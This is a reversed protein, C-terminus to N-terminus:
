CFSSLLSSYSRYERELNPVLNQTVAGEAQSLARIIIEKSSKGHCKFLAGHVGALLAARTQTPDLLTSGKVFEYFVEATKFFINGVFGNTLLLDVDGSFVAAPEVNGVYNWRDTQHSVLWTDLEQLESTGKGSERGINLLGLRPCSISSHVKAFSAGLCAYQLLEKASASVFAGVDLTLVRGTKSPLIGLLAPHRLNSFRKLYISGGATVAGTHACTILASIRGSKLDSLARILSADKKTRVASLANDEMTVCESCRVYEISTSSLEETLYCCISLQTKAEECVRLLTRQDVDAGGLDVGIRQQM